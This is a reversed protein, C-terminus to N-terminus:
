YITVNENFELSFHNVPHTVRCSSLLQKISAAYRIQAKPPLCAKGSGVPRNDASSEGGDNSRAVSCFALASTAAVVKKSHNLCTVGRSENTLGISLLSTRGSSKPMEQFGKPAGLIALRMREEVHGRGLCLFWLFDCCSFRLRGDKPQDHLFESRSASIANQPPDIVRGGGPVSPMHFAGADMM